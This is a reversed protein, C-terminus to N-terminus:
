LFRRMKRGTEAVLRANSCEISVSKLMAVFCCFYILIALYTHVLIIGVKCNAVPVSMM